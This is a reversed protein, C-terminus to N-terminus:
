RFLMLQAKKQLCVAVTKKMVASAQSSQTAALFVVTDCGTAVLSSIISYYDKNKMRYWRQKQM